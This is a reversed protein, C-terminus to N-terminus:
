LVLYNIIKEFVEPTIEPITKLEALNEIQGNQKKRHKLIALALGNKFYPHANLDQFLVTNINIKKIKTADIVLQNKLQQITSDAMGYVELLQKHSYFGGISERYTVIKFAGAPGIGRLKILTATDCTNLNVILPKYEKKVYAAHEAKIPLDIFPELKGYEADSITYMKQVDQKNYFHGGKNRYNLITKVTAASLGLKKFGNEDLNNPNFLYPTINSGDSQAKSYYNSKANTDVYINAALQQMAMSDTNSMTYPKAFLPLSYNIVVLILIISCLSIIAWAEWKGITFYKKIAQLM